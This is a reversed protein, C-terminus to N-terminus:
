VAEFIQLPNKWKTDPAKIDSLVIQGGRDLIYRYFKMGHSLEEQVQINLWNAFGKLNQAEFYAAMSLYFYASYIEKNVQQNLAEEMAKTLVAM